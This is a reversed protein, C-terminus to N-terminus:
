KNIMIKAKAEGFAKDLEKVNVKNKEYLSFESKGKKTGTGAYKAIHKGSIRDEDIEIESLLDMGNDKFGKAASFIVNGKIPKYLGIDLAMPGNIGKESAKKALLMGTLYATPLNPKPFWGIAKLESSSAAVSIKDGNPDYKIIQMTITRNSKRVVVRQMRGKLLAIRKKYNTLSKSRRRKQIEM